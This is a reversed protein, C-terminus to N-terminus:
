NLLAKIEKPLEFTEAPIDVNHEVSEFQFEFNFQPNTMEMLFPIKIGDVERYDSLNVETYQGNVNSISRLVLGTDVGFFYEVPEGEIPTFVVKTCKEEGVTEEGATEAKTYYTKWNLFEDIAARRLSAQKETGQLVRPGTMPNIDWAVDGNVGNSVEGFEAMDIRMMVKDPTQVYMEIPAYMGMDPLSFEGKIVRNKIQSLKDKGGVASLYKEVVNEVSDEGFAESGILILAFLILFCAKVSGESVKTKFM